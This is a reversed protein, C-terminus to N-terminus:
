EGAGLLTSSDEGDHDPQAEASNAIDGGLPKIGWSRSASAGLPMRGDPTDGDPTEEAERISSQVARHAPTLGIGKPQPKHAGHSASASAGDSYPPHPIKDGPLGLYLSPVGSTLTHAYSTMSAAGDSPYAIFIPDPLAALDTLDLGQKVLSAIMKKSHVLMELISLIKNSDETSIEPLSKELHSKFENHKITKITEKIFSNGDETKFDDIYKQINQNIKDPYTALHLFLKLINAKEEKSIDEKQKKYLYYFISKKKTPVITIDFGSDLIASAYELIHKHNYKTTLIGFVKSCLSDIDHDNDILNNLLNRINSVKIELPLIEDKILGNLISSVFETSTSDIMDLSLCSVLKINFHSSDSLLVKFLDSDKLYDQIPTKDIQACVAILEKIEEISSSKNIINALSHLLKKNTESTKSGSKKEIYKRFNEGISGNFGGARLVFQFFERRNESPTSFVYEFFSNSSEIKADFYGEHRKLIDLTTGHDKSDFAYKLDEITPELTAKKAKFSEIRSASARLASDPQFEPSFLDRMADPNIGATQLDVFLNRPSLEESDEEAGDKGTKPLVMQKPTAPETSSKNRLITKPQSPPKRDKILMESQKEKKQSSSDGLCGCVNGM